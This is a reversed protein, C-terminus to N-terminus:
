SNIKPTGERYSPLVFVSCKKLIRASMVKSASISPLEPIWIRNCSKKKLASPNTDFPGVLM